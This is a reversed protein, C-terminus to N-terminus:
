PQSPENPIIRSTAAFKHCDDFTLVNRFCSGEKTCVRVEGDVPALVTGLDPIAVNDYTVSSQYSSLRMRPTAGTLSSQLRLLRGSAKDVAIEGRLGPLDGNLLFTTNNAGNFQYSFFDVTGSRVVTERLFEFHTKTRPQFVTTLQNGFLALSRWGNAPVSDVTHGNVALNTYRDDTGDIFTVDATVVDLPRDNAFRKMTERCVYNPLNHPSM